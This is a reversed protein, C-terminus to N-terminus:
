QFTRYSLRPISSVNKYHYYHIIPQMNIFYSIHFIEVSIIKDFFDIYYFARLM